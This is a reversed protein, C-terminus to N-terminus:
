IRIIYHEQENPFEIFGLWLLSSLSQQVRQAMFFMFSFWAMSSCIAHVPTSLPVYVCRGRSTWFLTKRIWIRAVRAPSCLHRMCVCSPWHMDYWPVNHPVRYVLYRVQTVNVFSWCSWLVVIQVPSTAVPFFSSPKQTVLPKGALFRFVGVFRSRTLLSFAVGRIPCFFLLFFVWCRFFLFRFFVRTRRIYSVYIIKIVGRTNRKRKLM